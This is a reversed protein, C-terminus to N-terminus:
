SEDQRRDPDDRVSLLRRAGYAWRQAALTLTAAILLAVLNISLQALAGGLESWDGKAAAVGV